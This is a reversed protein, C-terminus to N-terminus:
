IYKSNANVRVKEAELKNKIRILQYKEKQDGNANADQIKEETVQIETELEKTLENRLRKNRADNMKFLPSAITHRLAFLVIPLYKKIHFATGYVLVTKFIKFIQNRYGPQLIKEKRKNEDWGNWESLKTRAAKVINNPLRLIAKGANKLETAGKKAAGMKKQMKADADMAKNQIKRTISEKQKVPNGDKDKITENTENNTNNTNTEEKNNDTNSSQNNSKVQKKNKVPKEDLEDDEDDELDDEDVDDKSNSGSSTKKNKGNPDTLGERLNGATDRIVPTAEGRRTFEFFSSDEDSETTLKCIDEYDNIQETFYDMCEKFTMDDRGTLSTILKSTVITDDNVNPSLYEAFLVDYMSEMFTQAKYANKRRIETYDSKMAEYYTDDDFLGKVANFPTSYYSDEIPAYENFIDDFISRYNSSVSECVLLQLNMNPIKDIDNIIGTDELLYSSIINSNMSNSYEDENYSEKMILDKHLKRSLYGPNISPLLYYGYTLKQRPSIEESEFFEDICGKIIEEDDEPNQYERYIADCLKNAAEKEEETGTEAFIIEHKRSDKVENISSLANEYLSLQEDPMNNKNDEIYQNLSETVVNFATLPVKKLTMMSEIFSLGYIPEKIIIESENLVESLNENEYLSKFEEASEVSLGVEKLKNYGNLLRKHLTGNLIRDVNLEIM